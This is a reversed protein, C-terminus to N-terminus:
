DELGPLVYVTIRRDEEDVNLICSPIKPLLLEKGDHKEVVYVDNAGTQWVDTLTGISVGDETVVDMGILDAILYKGPIKPLQSREVWLEAKRYKEAEDMTDIGSLKLIAMGKFYKVSEIKKIERSRFTTLLVPNVQKFRDMDDTTPYIKMEGHVGHPATVVGIRFYDEM